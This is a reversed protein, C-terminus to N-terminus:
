FSRAITTVVTDKKSHWRFTSYLLIRSKFNIQLYITYNFNGQKAVKPNSTSIWPRQHIEMKESGEITSVSFYERTISVYIYFSFILCEQGCNITLRLITM